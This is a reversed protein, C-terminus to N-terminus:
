CETLMLLPAVEAMTMTQQGPVSRRLTVALSCRTWHWLRAVSWVLTDSTARRETYEADLVYCTQKRVISQTDNYM